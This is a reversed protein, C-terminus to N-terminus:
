KAIISFSDIEPGLWPVELQMFVKHLRDDPIHKDERGAQRKLAESESIFFELTHVGYGHARAPHIFKSRIKRGQNKGDVIIDKGSALAAQFKEKIFDDFTSHPHLHCFKWAADYQDAKSMNNWYMLDVEDLYEQAYELRLQAESFHIAGEFGNARIWSTKGAGSAGVALYLTKQKQQNCNGFEIPQFEEIWEEVTRLKQEHDDSIRGRADSRLMDWFCIEDDGLTLGIAQRLDQRKRVNKLGYPLHHEIMFKIKRVDKWDFGQDFFMQRLENHDCIFSIFANGSIPEHGPYRRYFVGPQDKKELVEEAEPKGFDHFLLTMMTLMRQRETREAAFGDIYSNITMLTHIAVTPERHWPSFERTNRLAAWEPTKKVWVLFSEFFDITTM